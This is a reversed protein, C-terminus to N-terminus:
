IDLFLRRRCHVVTFHTELLLCSLINRDVIKQHTFLVADFGIDMYALCHLVLDFVSLTNFIISLKILFILAIQYLLLFIIEFHEM